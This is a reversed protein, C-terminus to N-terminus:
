FVTRLYAGLLIFSVVLMFSIGIFLLVLFIEGITTRKKPKCVHPGYNDDEMMDYFMQRASAGCGECPAFPDNNNAKM